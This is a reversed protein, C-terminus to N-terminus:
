ELTEVIDQHIQEPTQEGDVEIYQHKKHTRYYDIAPEVDAEFWDLRRKIADDTEDDIRGRSKLRKEAEERSIRPHIIHVNDRLFFALATDLIKAEPLSRPTGDIVVHENGKFQEIMIHSWM